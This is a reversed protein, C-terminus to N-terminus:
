VNQAAQSVAQLTAMNNESVAREAGWPGEPLPAEAVLRGRHPWASGQGWGPTARPVGTLTRVVQSRPGWRWSSGFVWARLEGCPRGEPTGPSGSSVAELPRPQHLSFWSGPLCEAPPPPRPLTAWGDRSGLRARGKMEAGADSLGAARPCFESPTPSPPTQPPCPQFRAEAWLECERRRLLQEIRM